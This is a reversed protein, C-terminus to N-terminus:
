QKPTMKPFLYFEPGKTSIAPGFVLDQSIYIRLGPLVFSHPNYVKATLIYRGIGLGYVDKFLAIDFAKKRNEENMSAVPVRQPFILDYQGQGEAVIEAKPLYFRIIPEYSGLVDKSAGLRLGEGDGFDDRLGEIGGFGYKVGGLLLLCNVISLALILYIMVRGWRIASLYRGALLGAPGIVPLMYYGHYNYILYFGMYTGFCLILFRETNGQRACKICGAIAAAVFGFSLAFSFETLAFWMPGRGMTKYSQVLNLSGSIFADPDALLGFLAYALVFAFPM